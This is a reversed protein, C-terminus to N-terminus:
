KAQLRKIMRCSSTWVGFDPETVVCWNGEAEKEATWKGDYPRQVFQDKEEGGNWGGGAREAAQRADVKLSLESFWRKSAKEEWGSGVVEAAHLVITQTKETIEQM